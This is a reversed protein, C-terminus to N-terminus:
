NGRARYARYRVAQVVHDMRTRLTHRLRQGSTMTRSTWDVSVPCRCANNRWEAESVWGHHPAQFITRFGFERNKFWCIGLEHHSRLALMESLCQRHTVERGLKREVNDKFFAYLMAHADYARTVDMDGMIIREGDVELKLGSRMRVPLNLQRGFDFEEHQWLLRLMAIQGFAYLDPLSSFWDPEVSLNRYASLVLRSEFPASVGHQASRFFHKFSRTPLMDSRWKLVFDCGMEEAARLGAWTSTRQLNHNGVGPMSPRESLVRHYSGPPLADAQDAWTSFIVVPAIEAMRRLVMATHNGRVDGQVVCGIKM